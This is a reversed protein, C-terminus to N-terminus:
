QLEGDDEGEIQKKLNEICELLIDAPNSERYKLGLRALELTTNLDDINIYSDPKVVLTLLEVILSLVKQAFSILTNMDQFSVPNHDIVSDIDLFRQMDNHAYIKNRQIRINTFVKRLSSFLKTFLELQDKLTLEVIFPLENTINFEKQQAKQHKIEEQFFCEEISSLRYRHFGQQQESFWDLNNLCTHLAFNIGPLKSDTEYLKAIKMVCSEWLAQAVISYFAPSLNVENNYKHTVDRLQILISYYSAADLAEEYLGEAIKAFEEKEM